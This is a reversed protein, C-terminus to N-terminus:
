PGLGIDTLYPFWGQADFHIGQVVPAVANLNVPERIPLILAQDMIRQQITAYLEARRAADMEAQAELLWSDLEPDAVGSWNLRAGASYFSNLVIPDLGAFNLAIASYDGTAQADGLLTFSAVQQITVQIQLTSEWQAELLQAV